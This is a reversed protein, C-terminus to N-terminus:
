RVQNRTPPGACVATSGPPRLRDRRTERANAPPSDRDGDDPEARIEDNPVAPHRAHHDAKAAAEGIDLHFGARADAGAGRHRVHFQRTGGLVGRDAAQRKQAANRTRDAAGQAHIATGVPALGLVHENGGGAHIAAAADAGIRIGLHMISVAVAPRRVVDNEGGGQELARRAIGGADTGLHVLDGFAAFRRLRDLAAGAPEREFIWRPVLGPLQDVRRAAAAQCHPGSLDRFQM